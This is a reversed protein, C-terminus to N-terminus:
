RIEKQKLLYERADSPYFKCLVALELESLPTSKNILDERKM